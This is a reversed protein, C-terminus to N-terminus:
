ASLSSMFQDDIPSSAGHIVSWSAGPKHNCSCGDSGTRIPGIDTTIKLGKDSLTYREHYICRRRGRYQRSINVKAFEILDCYFSVNEGFGTM